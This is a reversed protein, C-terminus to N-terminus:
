PMLFDVFILAFLVIGTFVLAPKLGITVGLHIAFIISAVGLIALFKNMKSDYKKDKEKQSKIWREAAEKTKFLQPRASFGGDDSWKVSYYLM